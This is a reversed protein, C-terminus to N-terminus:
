AKITKYTETRVPVRGYLDTREPVNRYTRTREPVNQYSGTRKTSIHFSVWVPSFRIRFTVGQRHVYSFLFRQAKSVALGM